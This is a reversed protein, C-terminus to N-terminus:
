AGNEKLRERLQMELSETERAMWVRMWNNEEGAIALRAGILGLAAQARDTIGPMHGAADLAAQIFQRSLEQSSPERPADHGSRRYMDRVRASEMDASEQARIAETTSSEVM